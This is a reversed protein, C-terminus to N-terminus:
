DNSGVFRSGGTDAALRFGVHRDSCHGLSRCVDPACPYLGRAILYMSAALMLHVVVSMVISVGFAIPHHHFMRLPPGIHHVLGGVLPLTSGWRILRDVARGGFVLLALFATATTALVATVLKIKGLDLNATQPTKVRWLLLERPTM